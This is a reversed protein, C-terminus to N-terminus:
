NNNTSMSARNACCFEFKGALVEVEISAGKELCFELNGALVKKEVAELKRSMLLWDISVESGM